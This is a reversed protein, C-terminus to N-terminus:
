SRTTKKKKSIIFSSIMGSFVMFAGKNPNLYIGYEKCKQFRLKLKQLHSDMHNYMTFDDLFRKM